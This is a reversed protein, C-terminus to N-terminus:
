AAHAAEAGFGEGAMMAGIEATPKAGRAFPQSVSGGHIVCIRDSLLQIEDLDESILLIAAGRARAALLREHVYAVAGVDLGRTPQAALIVGPDGDLARGLILKQMNGGSLLRIRADPSPCKVEYDRIIAAAFDRMAGSRLFGARAFRPTRYRELAANEAVSMDGITGVAHRDEPIRGIGRALAARPSWESIKEGGVTLAGSSPSVTGGILAALAAQGNGSVGALGTIEGSRL